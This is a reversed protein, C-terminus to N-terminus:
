EYFKINYIFDNYKNQAKNLEKVPTKSGEKKIFMHLLVLKESQWIFYLIRYLDKSFKVRIESFNYGRINKIVLYSTRGNNQAVHIINARIKAKISEKKINEIDERIPSIETRSDVYYIIKLM